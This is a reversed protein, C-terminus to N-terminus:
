LYPSSLPYKDNNRMGQMPCVQGHKACASPIHSVIGLNMCGVHMLQFPTSKEMCPGASLAACGSPLRCIRLLLIRGNVVDLM